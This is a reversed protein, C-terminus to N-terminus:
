SRLTIPAAQFTAVEPKFTRTEDVSRTHQQPEAYLANIQATFATEVAERNLRGQTPTLLGNEVTLTANILQFRKVMSWHPLTQNASDVLTQYLAIIKPHNIVTDASLTLGMAQAQARLQERHPFILMACFKRHAGVAIAHAVLSSEQLHHELREPTVYKGTSLKFLSKKYGTIKLFGEATFEGFDGTHFWGESNIAQRTAEPNKYYGKMIYPARILIEGDGAIAMEVGAIPVGVTGARNLAGRNCCVVSSSQTLGYGQLVCIGAASFLNALDGKLAAGGTLLYKLRGGFVGRWKEFVFDALKLQLAYLRDPPQGLEYRQALSLAWNFAMQPFRKLQGGTELIKQYVKELLRPVTAFITPQIERLHRVVRNQTTFAITHGYNIHGYLLVRAFIHTLPLFSLVTEADGRQLGPISSFAALADASLNEHTLMVGKPSECVYTAPQVKQFRYRLTNVFRFVPLIHRDRLTHCQGTTGALYIITALDDPAIASRLQQRSKESWRVQGQTCVQPLPFVQIGQPIKLDSSFCSTPFSASIPETRSLDIPQDTGKKGQEQGDVDAVLLIKLSSAEGLCPEIQRLLKLDSVILAKAESHQLIYVINEPTEGLYIPVNVLGALLCGMDAICFNVDSHMFLSVRDGKRLGLDRLGLALTEATTRVEQNSLPQWHGARWQNFAHSNPHRDCAEDLLSPLTRGLIVKGSNPPARYITTPWYMDGSFPVM